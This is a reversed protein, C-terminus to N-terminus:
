NQECAVDDELLLARQDIFQAQRLVVNNNLTLGFFIPYALM